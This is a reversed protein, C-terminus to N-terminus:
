PRPAPPHYPQPTSPNLPNPVIAIQGPGVRQALVPRSRLENEQEALLQGTAHGAIDAAAGTLGALAGALAWVAAEETETLPGLVLYAGLQSLNTRVPM